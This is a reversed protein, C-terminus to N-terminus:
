IRTGSLHRFKHLKVVDNDYDNTIDCGLYTFHQIQEIAKNKIVLKIRVPEKGM